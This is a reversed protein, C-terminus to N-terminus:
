SGPTSITASGTNRIITKTSQDPDRRKLLMVAASSAGGAGLGYIPLGCYSFDNVDAITAAGAEANPLIFSYNQANPTFGVGIYIPEGGVNQITRKSFGGELKTVDPLLLTPVTQSVAVPSALNLNVVSKDIFTTTALM